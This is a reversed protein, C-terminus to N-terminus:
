PVPSSFIAPNGGWGSRKTPRVPTMVLDLAASASSLPM